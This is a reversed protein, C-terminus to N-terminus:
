LGIVAAVAAAAEQRSQWWPDIIYEGMILAIGMLAGGAIGGACVPELNEVFVRHFFGKKNNFSKGAMWFFFSGFFMAFCTNVM